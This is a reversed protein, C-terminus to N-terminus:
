FDNLNYKDDVTSDEFAGNLCTYLDMMTDQPYEPYISCLFKSISNQFCDYQRFGIMIVANMNKYRTSPNKDLLHNPNLGKPMYAKM